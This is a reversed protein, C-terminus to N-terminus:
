CVAHITRHVKHKLEGGENHNLLQWTSVSALMSSSRYGIDFGVVQRINGDSGFLYDEAIAPLDKSKQSYAVEIVLGPYFAEEHQFTKDPLRSGFKGLYVKPSGRREIKSALGASTVDFAGDAIAEIQKEIAKEIKAAFSEHVSSGM